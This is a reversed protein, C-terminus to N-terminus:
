VARLDKLRLGAALLTAVYAAAGAAVLVALRWVRTFTAAHDWDPWLWRGLLLVAM